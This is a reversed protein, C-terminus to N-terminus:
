PSIRLVVKGQGHGSEVRRHAAAITDLEVVGDV